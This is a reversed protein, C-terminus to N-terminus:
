SPKASALSDLMVQYDNEARAIWLNVGESPHERVRHPRPSRQPVNGSGYLLRGERSVLWDLFGPDNQRRLYESTTRALIDVPIKEGWCIKNAITRASEADEGDRVVLMLDYDSDAHADGRARSGFLLVLEPQVRAVIAAVLADLQPDTVQAAIVM